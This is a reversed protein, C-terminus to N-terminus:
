KSEGAKVCKDIDDSLFAIADKFAAAIKFFQLAFWDVMEENTGWSEPSPNSNADMGSEFLFAHIIEHLLVREIVARINGCRVSALEDSRRSYDTVYIEKTSTDCFGDFDKLRHCEEENAIRVSYGTGLISILSMKSEEKAPEYYDDEGDDHNSRICVTCLSHFADDNYDCGECCGIDIGM